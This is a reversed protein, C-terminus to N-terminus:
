IEKKNEGRREERTWCILHLCKCALLYLWQELEWPQYDEEGQQEAAWHGDNQAKSNIGFQRDRDREAEEGQEVDKETLLCVPKFVPYQIITPFSQKSKFWEATLHSYFTLRSDLSFTLCFEKVSFIKVGTETHRTKISHLFM